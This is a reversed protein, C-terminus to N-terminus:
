FIKLGKVGKLVPSNTEKHAKSCKGTGGLRFYQRAFEVLRGKFAISVLGVLLAAHDTNM